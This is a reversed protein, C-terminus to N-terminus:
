IELLKVGRKLDLEKRSLGQKYNSAKWKSDLSNWKLKKETRKLNLNISKIEQTLNRVCKLCDIWDELM